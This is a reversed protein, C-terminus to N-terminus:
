LQRGVPKESYITILWIRGAYRLCLVNSANWLLFVFDANSGFPGDPRLKDRNRYCSAGSLIEVEGQEGGANLEGTGM